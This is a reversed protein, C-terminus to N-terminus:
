ISPKGHTGRIIIPLLAQFKGMLHLLIKFFREKKVVASLIRGMFLRKSFNSKWSSSYKNELESRNVVIGKIYEDCLEACIKASHIAMAMGNGCLPHIVGATDGIMLIHDYVPEKKAFSIQSITIPADFIMKCNELLKKLHPNGNLVGKEFEELDRYKKFQNYDTLYCINIRNNEVKSVGCYGGKFHHLEVLDDPFSGTYHAKVALWPSKRTIFKRKLQKDLGSRKGFAGILIKSHLTGTAATEITFADDHFNVSVVRDFVVKCGENVAHEYLLNDFLYRSIGFGGLPLKAHAKTGSATSITLRSIKTADLALIDIGLYTLYSWVENSIFEGCVKHHPYTNKEIVIVAHGCKKLHIACILGALGGGAIVINNEAEM